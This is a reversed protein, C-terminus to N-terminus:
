LHALSVPHGANQRADLFAAFADSDGINDSADYALEKLEPLLEMPSEGDDFRLSRSLEGTLGKSVGLTKVNSFPRLIELWQARDADNSPEHPIPDRTYELTLYEVESFATGVAKSIQALSAVQQDPPICVIGMYFPDMQDWGHPYMGVSVVSGKLKVRACKYRLKDTAGMFQQLRPIFTTRQDFFLIQIRELLPTTIHPLMGELYTSLGNFM